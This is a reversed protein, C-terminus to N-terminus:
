EFKISLPKRDLKTTWYGNENKSTGDQLVYDKNTLVGDFQIPSYMGYNIFNQESISPINVVRDEKLGYSIEGIATYSAFGNNNLVELRYIRYYSTPLKLTITENHTRVSLSDFSKIQEFNVGDNSGYIIIDKPFAYVSNNLNSYNRSILMLMNVRKKEGFDIQIWGKVQGDDTVWCDSSDINTGNFAKWSEFASSWISSASAVFPTPTTNSTMKTEHWTNIRELSYTKNDNLILIKNVPLDVTDQVWLSNYITGHNGYSSSDNAVTGSGEEFRWYGVLGSEDGKLVRDKYLNIEEQTLAKNWIRVEDIVGDFYEVVSAGNNAGIMMNYSSYKITGSIQVPNSQMEGNIYLKLISGDYTMAIHYWTNEKVIEDSYVNRYSGGIYAVGGWKASKGDLFIGYGSSEVNSIIYRNGNGVSMSKVWAEITVNDYNYPSSTLVYSSTGNFQLSYNNNKAM